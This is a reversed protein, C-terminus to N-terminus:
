KVKFNYGISFAIPLLDQEMEIYPHNTVEDYNDMFKESRVPIFLNASWKNGQSTRIDLGVGYTVGYSTMDYSSAGEVKLVANYGYLVTLTPSVRKSPLVKFSAGINYGIAALNYGVSGVIGIYPSPLYEIKAGLGGYDFGLGIGAFGEQNTDQASIGMIAFLFVTSLFIKKM